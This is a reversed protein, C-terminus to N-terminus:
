SSKEDYSDIESKASNSKTEPRDNEDLIQWPDAQQPEEEIPGNEEVGIFVEKAMNAQSAFYEQFLSRAIEHRRAENIDADGFMLETSKLSLLGAYIETPSLSQIDLGSSDAWRYIEKGFQKVLVQPTDTVHLLEGSLTDGMQALTAQVRAEMEEFYTEGRSMLMNHPIRLIQSMQAIGEDNRPLDKIKLLLELIEDRVPSLVEQRLNAKRRSMITGRLQEQSGVPLPIQSELKEMDSEMLSFGAEMLINHLELQERDVPIFLKDLADILEDRRQFLFFLRTAYEDYAASKAYDTRLTLLVRAYISKFKAYLVARQILQSLKRTRPDENLWSNIDVMLEANKKHFYDRAKRDDKLLSYLWLQTIRLKYYEKNGEGLIDLILNDYTKLRPHQEGIFPYDGSTEGVFRRRLYKDTKEPDLLIEILTEIDEENLSFLHNTLAILFGYLEVLPRGAPIITGAVLKELEFQNVSGDAAQILDLPPDLVNLVNRRLNPFLGSISATDSDYQSRRVIYDLEEEPIGKVFNTADAAFGLHAYWPRIEGRGESEWARSIITQRIGTADFAHVSDDGALSKKISAASGSMIGALFPYRQVYMEGFIGFWAREKSLAKWEVRAQEFPNLEDPAPM